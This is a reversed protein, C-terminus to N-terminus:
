ESDDFEEMQELLEEQFEEERDDLQEGCFPCYQIPLEQFGGVYTTTGDIVFQIQPFTRATPFKELLEEKTFDENLMFYKYELKRMECLMKAKDCYPCMPKGYIEVIM